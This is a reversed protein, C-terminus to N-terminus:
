DVYGYPVKPTGYVVLTCPLQLPLASVSPVSVSINGSYSGAVPLLYNVISVTFKGKGTGSSPTVQLWSTDSTASWSATSGGGLGVVVDQSSTIASGNSTAAFYLATRNLSLTIGAPGQTASFNLAADAALATAARSSPTFSYGSLSPTVTYNGLAPLNVFSYDGQSDSSVSAVLSGGLAVTAGAVGVNGYISFAAAAASFDVTRSSTLSSITVSRPTFGYNGLSPTITYSGGAPLQVFFYTGTGDATTAGSVSGSLIVTAGAVGTNGYIDHLNLQAVFSVTQNTNLSSIVANPPTFTYNALM